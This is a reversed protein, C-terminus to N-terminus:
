QWKHDPLQCWVHQRFSFLNELRNFSIKWKPPTLILVGNRTEPNKHTKKTKNKPLTSQKGNQLSLRIIYGVPTSLRKNNVRGVVCRDSRLVGCEGLDSNQRKKKNEDWDLTALEVLKTKPRGAKKKRRLQSRLTREIPKIRIEWFGVINPNVAVDRTFEKYVNHVVYLIAQPRTLSIEKRGLGVEIM